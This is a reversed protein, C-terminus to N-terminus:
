AKEGVRWNWLVISHGELVVEYFKKKQHFSESNISIAYHNLKCSIRQFRQENKM